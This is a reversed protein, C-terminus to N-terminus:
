QCFGISLNPANCSDFGIEDRRWVLRFLYIYIHIITLCFLIAGIQCILWSGEQELGIIFTPVSILGGLIFVIFAVVRLNKEPQYKETDTDNSITGYPQM